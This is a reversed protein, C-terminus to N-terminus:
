RGAPAHPVEPGNRVPQGEADVLRVKAEGTKLLGVLEDLRANTARQAEIMAARQGASNLFEEAAEAQPSMPPLVAWLAVLHLTLLAAITTLVVRTYADVRVRPDKMPQKM